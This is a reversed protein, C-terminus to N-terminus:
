SRPENSGGHLLRYWAQCGDTRNINTISRSKHRAGSLNIYCLLHFIWSGFNTTKDKAKKIFNRLYICAVYWRSSPFRLRYSIRSGEVHVYGEPLGVRSQWFRRWAELVGLGRIHLDQQQAGVGHGRRRSKLDRASRPRDPTTPLGLRPHRRQFRLLVSRCGSFSRNTLNLLYTKMLAFLLATINWSLTLLEALCHLPVIM